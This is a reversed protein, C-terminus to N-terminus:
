ILRNNMASITLAIRRPPQAFLCAAVGAASGAWGAWGEAALAPAAESEVYVGAEAANM